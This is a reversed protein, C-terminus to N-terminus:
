SGLLRENLLTHFDRRSDAVILVTVTTGELHYVIRYPNLSLQRYERIGIADLEHVVPGRAAFTGLSEIAEVLADLLADSGDPGGEGRQLSRRRYIAALDREAGLAIRVKNSQEAM